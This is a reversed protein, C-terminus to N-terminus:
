IEFRNEDKNWRVRKPMDSIDIEERSVPPNTQPPANDTPPLPPLTSRTPARLPATHPKDDREFGLERLPEFLDDPPEFDADDRPEFNKDPGEPWLTYQNDSAPSTDFL